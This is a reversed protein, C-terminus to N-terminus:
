DEVINVKELEKEMAEQDMYFIEWQHGDPDAFSHGYMWGHDQPDLYVSGGAAVAKKVLEDVEERSSVDLAILVETTKGADAIEKKTFDKFRDKMLLMAYMNKGLIVCTATEDTFKPNFEFGLKTFFDISRNLDEVPLNIFIKNTM